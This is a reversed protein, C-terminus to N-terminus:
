SCTTRTASIRDSAKIAEADVDLVVVRWNKDLFYAAVGKGIGQAGGTILIVPSQQTM